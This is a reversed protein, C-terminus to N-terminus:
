SATARGYLHGKEALFVLGFAVAGCLAAGLPLLAVDGTWHQGIFSGIIAGGVMSTVGQLSAATGAVHGVKEMSIAAFNSTSLSMCAMTLTQFIIFSILSEHGTVAWLWHALATVNFVSLAIHSIRRSGLREVIRANLVSGVAMGIACVAFIPALLQPAKFSENFIQPMLSIYAVITATMFTIALSYCLSTRETIIFASVRKLHAPNPPNRREVPLTEPLRRWIWLAVIIGAGALILFIARWSPLVFLIVQGLSPALVPVLLFVVYIMSMVKAMTSGAYRDRVISRPVVSASAAAIGQLFRLLILAWLETAAAAAVSMIIYALIGFLLVRKRGLWDSLTGFLLQGAGAGSFFAVVVWQLHNQSEAKLDIGMLPLAPLMTDVGLATLAMCAAMMAVFESFSPEPKAPTLPPTM